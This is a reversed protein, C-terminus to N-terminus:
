SKRSLNRARMLRVSIPLDANAVLSVQSVNEDPNPMVTWYRFGLLYIM